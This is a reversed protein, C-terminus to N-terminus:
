FSVGVTTASSGLRFTLAPFGANGGWHWRGGVAVDFWLSVVNCGACNNILYFEPVFTAEAFLSFKEHLYFNWQPGVYSRLTWFNGWGGGAGAWRWSWSWYLLDAGVTLAFSNNIRSIPGAPILPIGLRFGPGLGTGYGNNGWYSYAGHVEIEFHNHDGPQRIYQAEATGSALVLAGVTAAGALYRKM